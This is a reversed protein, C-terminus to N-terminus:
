LRNDAPVCFAISYKQLETYRDRVDDMYHQAQTIDQLFQKKGDRKALRAFIGIVKLHRQVGQWEFWLWFQEFSVDNLLGNEIAKDYYYHVWRKIQVLPWAIYCDKLLSVLDYTIPGYVADQFDIVALQSDPQRMINRSHYDRHVFVQPQEAAIDILQQTLQEFQQQEELTIAHQAVQTLYWDPYRQLEMRIFDGDFAPLTPAVAQLEVQMQILIDMARRYLSDVDGQQLSRWLLEDGLDSLLLFGHQLDKAQIHPVLINAQELWGAIKIFSECDEHTPEADMVIYSQGSADVRYYRRFSADGALPRLEITPLDLSESLWQTLQQMRNM